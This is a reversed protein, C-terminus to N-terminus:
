KDLMEATHWLGLGLGILRLYVLVLLDTPIKAIAKTSMTWAPFICFFIAACKMGIVVTRTLPTQIM